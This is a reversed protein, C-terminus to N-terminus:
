TAAPRREVLLDLPGDPMHRIWVATPDLDLARRAASVEAVDEDALSEGGLVCPV